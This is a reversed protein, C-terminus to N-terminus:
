PQETEPKKSKWSWALGVITVLSGIGSALADYNNVVADVLEQPVIKRGVLFGGVFTLVHRIQGKTKDNKLFEAIKNM